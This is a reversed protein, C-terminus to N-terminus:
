RFALLQRMSQGKRLRFAAFADRDPFHLYMNHQMVHDFRQGPPLGYTHGPFIRTHPALRAKLRELSDFMQHAAQEDPCIGCGEAFLVDGTFLADGILYCTCGPTHGPTIIPEIRLAGVSWPAGDVPVLQPAAYKFAAIERRPMWIPCAYRQALPGALDTHDPHGHTVLIGRLVAGTGDLAAVIADADWAPDVLVAQRSARDVVLYNNNKMPGRAVRILHVETAATVAHEVSREMSHEMMRREVICGIGRDQM